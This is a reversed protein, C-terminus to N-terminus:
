SWAESAAPPIYHPLRPRCSKSPQKILISPLQRRYMDSLNIGISLQCRTQLIQLPSQKVILRYSCGDACPRQTDANESGHQPAALRISSNDKPEQAPLAPLANGPVFTLNPISYFRMEIKEGTVLIQNRVIPHPTRIVHICQYCNINFFDSGQEILRPM